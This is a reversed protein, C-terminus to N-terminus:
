PKSVGAGTATQISGVFQGHLVQARARDGAVACGTCAAALVVRRLPDHAIDVFDHKALEQYLRRVDYRGQTFRVMLALARPEANSLSLLGTM